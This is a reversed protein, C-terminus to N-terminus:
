GIEEKLQTSDLLQNQIFLSTLDTNIFQIINLSQSSVFGFDIM